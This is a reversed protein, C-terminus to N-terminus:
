VAPFVKSFGLRFYVLTQDILFSYPLRWHLHLIPENKFTSLVLIRNDFKSDVKTDEKVNFM